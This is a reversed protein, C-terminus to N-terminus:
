PLLPDETLFHCAKTLIQALYRIQLNSRSAEFTNKSFQERLKHITGVLVHSFIVFSLISKALLALYEWKGPQTDKQSWECITSHLFSSFFCNPWFFSFLKCLKVFFLIRSTAQGCVMLRLLDRSEFSFM